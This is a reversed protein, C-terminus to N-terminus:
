GAFYFIAGFFAGVCVLAVLQGLMRERADRRAEEREARRSGASRNGHAMEIDHRVSDLQGPTYGLTTERM